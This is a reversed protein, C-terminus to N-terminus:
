NAAPEHFILSPVEFPRQVAAELSALAKAAKLQGELQVLQTNALELDAALLELREAAGAQVAAAVSARRANQQQSLAQLESVTQASIRLVETAREIEALAKAQVENFRAAAEKRRAKAEAIPGQNQNLIPL